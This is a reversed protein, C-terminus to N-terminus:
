ALNHGPQPGEQITRSEKTQIERSAAPIFGAFARKASEWSNSPAFSGPVPPEFGTEMALADQSRPSADLGIALLVSLRLAQLQPSPVVSDLTPQGRSRVIALKGLKAGLEDLEGVRARASASVM